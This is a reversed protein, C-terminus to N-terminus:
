IVERKYNYLRFDEEEKFRAIKFTLLMERRATSVLYLDNYPAVQFYTVLRTSRM